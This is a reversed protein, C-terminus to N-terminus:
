LTLRLTIFTFLLGLLAAALCARVTIHKAGSLNWRRKRGEPLEM